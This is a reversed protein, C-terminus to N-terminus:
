RLWRSTKLGVDVANRLPFAFMIGTGRSRVRRRPVSQDLADPLLYISRDPEVALSVTFEIGYSSRKTINAGETETYTLGALLAARQLGYHLCVPDFAEVCLDFGNDLLM